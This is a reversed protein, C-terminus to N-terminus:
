CAGVNLWVFKNREGVGTVGGDTAVNNQNITMNTQSSKNSRKNCVANTVPMIVTVSMQKSCGYEDSVNM